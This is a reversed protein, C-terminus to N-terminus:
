SMWVRCRECRSLRTPFTEANQRNAYPIILEEKMKVHCMYFPIEKLKPKVKRAPMDPAKEKWGSIVSQTQNVSIELNMASSNLLGRAIHVAMKIRNNERCIHIFVHANTAQNLKTYMYPISISLILSSYVIRVTCMSLRNSETTYVTSARTM